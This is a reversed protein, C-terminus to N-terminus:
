APGTHTHTSACIDTWVCVGADRGHVSPVCCSALGLADVSMCVRLCLLLDHRPLSDLLAEGRPPEPGAPRFHFQQPAEVARQAHRGAAAEAIRRGRGRSSFLFPRWLGVANTSLRRTAAGVRRTLLREREFVRLHADTRSRKRTRHRARAPADAHPSFAALRRCRTRLARARKRLFLEPTRVTLSYKQLRCGLSDPEEIGRPTRNQIRCVVRTAAGGCRRQGGVLPLLRSLTGHWVPARQWVAELRSRNRLPSLVSYHAQGTSTFHRYTHTHTHTRACTHTHTHTRARTRAYM